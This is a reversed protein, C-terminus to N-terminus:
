RGQQLEPPLQKLDPPPPRRDIPPHVPRQPPQPPPTPRWPPRPAPAPPPLLPSPQLTNCTWPYSLCCSVSHPPGCHRLFPPCCGYPAPYPYAYYLEVDPEQKVTAEQARSQNALSERRRQEEQAAREAERAKRDKELEGTLKRIRELEEASSAPQMPATEIGSEPIDVVEANTVGPPPRDSYHVQGEADIWKYVAGPVTASLSLMLTLIIFKLLCRNMPDSDAHIIQATSMRSFIIYREQGVQPIM